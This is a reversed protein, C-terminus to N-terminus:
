GWAALRGRQRRPDGDHDRNRSGFTHFERQKSKPAAKFFNPNMPGHFISKPMGDPGLSQKSDELPADPKPALTQVSKHPSDHLPKGSRQRAEKIKTLAEHAAERVHKIKDAKREKLAVVIDDINAVLADPLFAAFTYIVDIAMKRTSWDKQTQMCGMLAPIFKSAYKEFEYEVALVLSILTELLQTTCRVWSSQALELLSDTLTGLVAVLADIPSNQVVRTLCMGAGIQVNRTATRLTSFLGNVINTLHTVKDAPDSIHKFVHHVMVGLSDSLAVHLQPDEFRKVCISMIKPIFAIMSDEFVEGMIGFFKLAEKRQSIGMHENQESFISILANMRDTSTVYVRMIEKLEELAGQTTHGDKMKALANTVTQRFQQITEVGRKSKAAARKNM